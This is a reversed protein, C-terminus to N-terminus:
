PVIILASDSASGASVVIETRGNGVARVISQTPSVLRLTAVSSDRVSWGLGALGSLDLIEHGLRDYPIARLQGSDGLSLTDVQPTVRVSTITPLVPSCACLPDCHSAISLLSVAFIAVATKLRGSPRNADRIIQQISNERRM